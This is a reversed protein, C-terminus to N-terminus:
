TQTGTGASYGRGYIKARNSRSHPRDATTQIHTVDDYLWWNVVFIDSLLDATRRTNLSSPCDKSASLLSTMHCSMM